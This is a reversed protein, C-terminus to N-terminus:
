GLKCTFLACLCLSIGRCAIPLVIVFPLYLPVFNFLMFPLGRESGLAIREADGSKCGEVEEPNNGPM